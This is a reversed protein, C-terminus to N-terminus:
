KKKAAAEATAILKELPEDLSKGRLQRHRIIGEHDIVYTTPYGAVCWSKVLAHDKDWISRWTMGTKEAAEKTDSLKEDNAIGIIAFPRDQFREVLVKEHPVDALCPGCWSGWFVLLVVKGKYEALSLEKGDLDTGATEQAPKGLGCRDLREIWGEATAVYHDDLMHQWGQEVKKGKYDKVFQQFRQMAEPQREEGGCLCIHALALEATVKPMFKNSQVITKLHDEFQHAWPSNYNRLFFEGFNFIDRSQSHYKVIMDAADRFAAPPEPKDFDSVYASCVWCLLMGADKKDPEERIRELIADAFPRYDDIRQGPYYMLLVFNKAKVLNDIETKPIHDNLLKRTTEKGLESDSDYFAIWFLAQIEAPTNAYDGALKHLRKAYEHQNPALKQAERKEEPTKANLWAKLYVSHENSFEERIAKLAQEAEQARDDAQGASLVTLSGIAFCIVRLM